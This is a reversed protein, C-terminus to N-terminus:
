HPTPSKPPKPRVVGDSPALVTSGDLTVLAPVPQNLAGTWKPPKKPAPTPKPPSPQKVTTGPAPPEPRALTKKVHRALTPAEDVRPVSMAPLGLLDIITKTISAHSHWRSDIAQEVKGGFMILPIRSGGIVAFGDPHIADSVTEVVPTTVSDAYGGWDDWTLIFTTDAWGGGDIVAQVRSWVLDHGHTIYAPDSV